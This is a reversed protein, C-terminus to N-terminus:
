DRSLTDALPQCLPLSEPFFALIFGTQIYDPPPFLFLLDLRTTPFPPCPSFSLVYGKGYPSFLLPNGKPGYSPFIKTQLSPSAQVMFSLILYIPTHLM